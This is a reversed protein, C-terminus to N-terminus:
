DYLSYVPYTAPSWHLCSPDLFTPSKKRKECLLAHEDLLDKKRLIIHKGKWYKLLGHFQFTSIIDDCHLGSEQSLEKISITDQKGLRILYELIVDKWYSRYSILGLDSLPREPSGVKQERRTLLYSFDIMMKGYGHNMHQPMTLICSVNCNQASHKEKSFYGVFHCGYHSAKTLVYFLFPEVDFYLTKNELFLKAMLCLNQCYAKHKEGDVEFISLLNKRYIENGPPHRWKCIKAHRYLTETSKYFKLCFECIYIVPLQTYERPYPSHYWTDVEYSGFQIRSLRYEETGGLGLAQRTSDQSERFAALDGAPALGELPAEPQNNFELPKHPALLSHLQRLRFAHSSPITPCYPPSSPPPSPCYPPSSPLSHSATPQPTVKSFNAVGERQAQRRSPRSPTALDEEQEEGEEGGQQTPPLPLVKGRLRDLEERRTRCDEATKGHAQPCGSVAYHMSYLGTIHGTGDCGPTPCKNGKSAEVLTYPIRRRKKPRGHSSESSSPTATSATGSNPTPTAAIPTTVAAPSSNRGRKPPRAEEALQMKIPTAGGVPEEGKGTSRKGLRESTRRIVLEEAPTTRTRLMKPPPTAEEEGPLDDVEEKVGNVSRRSRTAMPCGSVAYHMSYLGTSHGNGQCGPTPCKNGKSAEVLAFPIRKCGKKRPVPSKVIIPPPAPPTIQPETKVSAVKAPASRSIAPRPLPTAQGVTVFEDKEVKEASKIPTACKRASRRSRGPNPPTPTSQASTNIMSDVKLPETM